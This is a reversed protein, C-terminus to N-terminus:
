ASAPPTTKTSGAKMVGKMILGYFFWLAGALTGLETALSLIDNASLTIHFFQSGLFIIVGSAALVAGRVTNSVQTPDQSSQLWSSLQPM